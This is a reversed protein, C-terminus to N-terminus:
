FLNKKAKIKKCISKGYLPKANKRRENEVSPDLGQLKDIFEDYKLFTKVIYSGDGRNIQFWTKSFSSEPDDYEIIFLDSTAFLKTNIIFGNENITVEGADENINFETLSTVGDGGCQLRIIEANVATPLALAALLSLLLRKM